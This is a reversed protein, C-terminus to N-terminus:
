QTLQEIGIVRTTLPKPSDLIQVIKKAVLQVDIPKIAQTLNGILPLKALTNLAWKARISSPRDRGVLLGPRVITLPLPLNILLSEAEQKAQMYRYPGANASLFIFHQLSPLQASAVGIIKAAKVIFKSYTIEKKPQEKIIGILDIVAFADQLYIHWDTTTFIDAAVWTISSASEKATLRDESPQGSRSISIVTFGEIVAAQCLAQGLFGSGGLIVVKKAKSM